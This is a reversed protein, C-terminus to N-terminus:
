KRARIVLEVWQSQAVGPEVDFPRDQLAEAAKSVAQEVEDPRVLLSVASEDLSFDPLTAYPRARRHLTGELLGVVADPVPRRKVLPEAGAVPVEVTNPAYVRFLGRLFLYFAGTQVAAVTLFLNISVMPVLLYRVLFMPASFAFLAWLAQEARKGSPGRGAAM